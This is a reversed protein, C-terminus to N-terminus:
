NNSPRLIYSLHFSNTNDIILSSKFMETGGQREGRVVRIVVVGVCGEESKFVISSCLGHEADPLIVACLVVCSINKRVITQGFRVASLGGIFLIEAEKVM